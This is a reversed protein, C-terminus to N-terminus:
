FIERVYVNPFRALNGFEMESAFRATPLQSNLNTPLTAVRGKILQDKEGKVTGEKCM